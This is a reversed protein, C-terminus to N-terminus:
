ELDLTPPLLPLSAFLAPVVRGGLAASSIHIYPKLKKRPLALALQM